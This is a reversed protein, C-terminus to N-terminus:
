FRWDGGHLSSHMRTYAAAMNSYASNFLTIVQNYKGWEANERNICSQLYFLYVDHGYAQGLLLETDPDTDVGYGHFGHCGDRRPLPVEASIQGDLVSLWTIKQESSYSNPCLEDAEAIIEAITM